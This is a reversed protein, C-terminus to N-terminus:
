EENIPGKKRRLRNMVNTSHHSGTGLNCLFNFCQPKTNTRSNSGQADLIVLNRDEKQLDGLCTFSTLSYWHCLTSVNRENETPPCIHVGCPAMYRCGMGEVCFGMPSMSKEPPVLCLAPYFQILLKNTSKSLSKPWREENYHEWPSHPVMM